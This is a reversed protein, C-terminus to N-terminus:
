RKREASAGGRPKWGKGVRGGESRARVNGEILFVRGHLKPELDQLVPALQRLAKSGGPENGHLSGVAILTPGAADGCFSGILHNKPANTNAESIEAYEM